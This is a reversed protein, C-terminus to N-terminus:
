GRGVTILKDGCDLAVPVRKDGRTDAPGDQVVFEADVGAVGVRDTAFWRTITDVFGSLDVALETAEKVRTPNAGERLQRTPAGLNDKSGFRM